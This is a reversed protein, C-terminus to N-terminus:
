SFIMGLEADNFEKLRERIGKISARLIARAKKHDCQLSWIDEGWDVEEEAASMASFLLYDGDLLLAIRKSQKPM